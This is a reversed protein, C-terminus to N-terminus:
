YFQIFDFRYARRDFVHLGCGFGIYSYKIMRLFNFLTNQIQYVRTRYTEIPVRRPGKQQGRMRRMWGCIKRWEYLLCFITSYNSIKRSYRLQRACKMAQILPRTADVNM